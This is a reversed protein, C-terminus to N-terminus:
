KLINGIVELDGIAMELTNIEARRYDKSDYSHPRGIDAKLTKVRNEYMEKVENLAKHGALTKLKRQSMKMMLIIYKGM